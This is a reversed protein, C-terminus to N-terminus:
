LTRASISTELGNSYSQTVSTVVLRETGAFGKYPYKVSIIDGVSIMPNGFCVLNISKGKTITKSKIWEALSKVDSSNQLWSSQFIIPEKVEYDSTDTSYELDGSKNLTNGWLYINSTGQEDIATNASSTNIAYIKGKFNDIKQSLIKIISRPGTTAVLPFVPRSDFAIDYKVIERATTGFEDYSDAKINDLQKSDSYSLEGYTSLLYDNSFQGQYFNTDYDTKTYNESTIDSAYVYDFAAQGYFCGIAVGTTPALIQNRVAPTGSTGNKDSATILMGNIYVKFYIAGTLVKVRVDIKYESGAYIDSKISAPAATVQSDALTKKHQNGVVKIIRVPKPKGRSSASSQTDIIIYYGTGGMNNTFIGLGASTSTSQSEADFVLSTGFSYYKESYVKYGGATESLVTETSPTLATFGRYMLSGSTGDNKVNGNLTVYTKGTSIATPDLDKVGLMGATVQSTTLVYNDYTLTNATYTVAGVVRKPTIEFIYNGGATLNNITIPASSFKTTGTLYVPARPIVIVSGSSDMRTIYVDYHTAPKQIDYIDFSIEVSTLTKQHIDMNYISNVDSSFSAGLDGGPVALM